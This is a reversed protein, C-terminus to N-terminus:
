VSVPTLNKIALHWTKGVNVRVHDPRRNAPVHRLVGRIYHRGDATLYVESAAHNTNFLSGHKVLAGKEKRLQRLTLSPMPIAFIDGQRKVERGMDEALRVAQPKLSELAEEITAPKAKPPLETFFYSPRTENRDFGSLFYASRLRRVRTHRSGVCGECVTTMRTAGVTRAPITRGDDEWEPDYWYDYHWREGRQTLPGEANGDFIEVRPEVKGTGKCAPCKITAWHWVNATILSEGLWHRYRTRRWVTQGAEDVGQTWGYEHDTPMSHSTEVWSETRDATVEVFRVTDLSIGAENLVSFPIIASPLGTGAVASRVTSQHQTTSSSFTDGNLLIMIVQGKADRIGRAIEFHHGYSYIIDGEAFVNSNNRAYNDRKTRGAMRDAWRAAHESHTAM